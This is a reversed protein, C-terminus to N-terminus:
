GKREFVVKDVLDTIDISLQQNSFVLAVNFTQQSELVIIKLSQNKRYFKSALPICLM